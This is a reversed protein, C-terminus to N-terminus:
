MLLNFPVKRQQKNKITAKTMAFQKFQVLPEAQARGGHEGAHGAFVHGRQYLDLISFLFYTLDGLSPLCQLNKNM